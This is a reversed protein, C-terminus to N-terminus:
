AVNRLSGSGEYLDFAWGMKAEFYTGHFKTFTQM